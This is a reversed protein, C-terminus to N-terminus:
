IRRIFKLFEKFIRVIIARIVIYPLLLKTLITTSKDRFITLMCGALGPIGKLKLYELYRSPQVDLLKKELMARQYYSIGPLKKYNDFIDPILNASGYDLRMASADMQTITVPYDTMHWTKGRMSNYAIFFVYPYLNDVKQSSYLEYLGERYHITASLQTGRWSNERCNRFGTDYLRSKRGNDRGPKIEGSSYLSITAPIVSYIKEDKKLEPLITNLYEKDLYDDDGIYMFYKGTANKLLYLCNFIPGLNEPQHFIRHDLKKFDTSNLVQPTKDTSHNDSILIEIEDSYINETVISIILDLNKALEKSRNYTPILISLFKKDPM